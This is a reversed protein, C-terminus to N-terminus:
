RGSPFFKKHTEEVAKELQVHWFDGNSGGVVARGGIEEFKKKGNEFVVNPERDLDYDRIEFREVHDRYPVSKVFTLGLFNSHSVEYKVGGEVTFSVPAEKVLEVIQRLEPSARSLDEQQPIGALVNLLMLGLFVSLLVFIKKSM